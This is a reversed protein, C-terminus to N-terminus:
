RSGASAKLAAPSLSYGFDGNMALAPAEPSEVDRLPRAPISAPYVSPEHDRSQDLEDAAKESEPCALRSARMPANSKEQVPNQDDQDYQHDRPRDGLKESDSRSM